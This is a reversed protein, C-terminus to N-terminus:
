TVTLFLLNFFVRLTFLALPPPLHPSVPLRAEVRLDSSVNYSVSLYSNLDYSVAQGRNILFFM